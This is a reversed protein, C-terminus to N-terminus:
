ATHVVIVMLVLILVMAIVIWSIIHGPKPLKKKEGRKGAIM